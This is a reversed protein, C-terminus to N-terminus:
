KSCIPNIRRGGGSGPEGAYGRCLKSVLLVVGPGVESNLAEWGKPREAKNEKGEGEESNWMGVESNWQRGAEWKRVKWRKVKSM